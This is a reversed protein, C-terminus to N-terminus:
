SRFRRAYSFAERFACLKEKNGVISSPVRREIRPLLTVAGGFQMSSLAAARVQVITFDHMSVPTTIAAHMAPDRDKVPGLAM